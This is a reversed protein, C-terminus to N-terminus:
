KPPGQHGGDRRLRLPEGQKSRIGSHPTQGVDSASELASEQPEEVLGPAKASPPQKPCFYKGLPSALLAPLFVLDGVLAAVLLTLMMVGFRQTPTFTSFAFVSLGLGGILTTQTMAGACRNYALMIAERRSKGQLIGGRFWTLFHITDDVAVGMAVSATMMSGIDVMIRLHGMIGFIVVVPFVNPLMSLMGGRVNLLNKASVRGSRLLVMMVVAIMVFAWVISEILSTLLTRQAKFIIPVVGTYIVKLGQGPMASTKVTALQEWNITELDMGVLRHVLQKESGKFDALQVPPGSALKLQQDDLVIVHNFGKLYKDWTEPKMKSLSERHKPNNTDIWLLPHPLRRDNSFGKVLLLDNLTRAFITLQLRKLAQRDNEKTIMETLSQSPDVGLVLIRNGDFFVNPSRYANPDAQGTKISQQEIQQLFTDRFRYAALIPEVVTKLQHFFEGYDVDNLAGLRLGVRWLESDPAGAAQDSAAGLALYDEELLRGRNRELLGNMTYRQTRAAPSPLDPTFTVASMGHGIIDKGQQGFVEEVTRQVQDVLEVRELFTYQYKQANRQQDSIGQQNKLEELSPAQSQVPVQVVMEMPVLKGFNEELWAYDRIVKADEDFLKLLQVSTTIKFLGMGTILLVAISGVCVWAYRKSVWNGIYNWFAVVLAQFRGVSPQSADKGPRQKPPWVQLAAPLYTFLLVATALVGLASYFGFKNIPLINSRCLSVLGLSTTFAALACPAVGNMLAREPAGPLGHDRVADRYYNVIHVAGSLGLVYVLSPMTLLVSDLRGGCFWVIGLSFIAGVGGVFFLMVTIKISRFCLYSIGLGVVLSFGVLRVLTIEGEEDIAVNDVPPGGMRLVKGGPRDETGWPTTPPLPPRTVGSNMALQVLKGPPKGMLGRGLVRRLDRKGAESFTVLICTQRPPPSFEESLDALLAQWHALQEADTAAVLNQFKGACEEKVLQGVFEQFQAEWNAPLTQFRTESLRSRFAQATWAFGTEPSQLEGLQERFRERLSAFYARWHRAQELDTAQVFQARDGGYEKEVVQEVFTALQGAWDAPLAALREPSLHSQFTEGTWDFGNPLAPAFLTGTLRDVAAERAKRLRDEPSLDSTGRTRLPGGKGALQEVVEPGTSVSSFYRASLRRIDDHYDNHQGASGPRDGFRGVKTGDISVDRLVTRQFSRGLYGFLNSRGNWRYVEGEPTVYYWRNGSGKFWKEHLGGWNFFDDAAVDLGLEDGLKRARLQEKLKATLAEAEGNKATDALQSAQPVVEAKLKEVLLRFSPDEETCGEWTVVVFQEGLFHGGFWELQKTEEFDSPLWDSIRNEMQQLSYKAGRLGFPVLFFVLMLILLGNPIGWFRSKRALFSQKM